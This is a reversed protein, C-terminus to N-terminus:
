GPDPGDLNVVQPDGGIRVVLAEVPEDPPTRDRHATHAPICLFDGPRGEISDSGGPGFDVSLTARLVYVYTDNAAHHHWGGALGPDTQVWGIWRDRDAHIQHRVMGPTAPGPVAEAPHVVFPRTM